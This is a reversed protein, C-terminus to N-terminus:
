ATLIVANNGENLERVNDSPDLVFGVEEVGWGVRMNQVKLTRGFGVELRGLDLSEVVDGDAVIDLDFGDIDVLGENLVSINFDLYAGHLVADLNSIRADALAEISYLQVMLEIMDDSMRQGCDSVNFMINNPDASHDFGVVHVVGHLAVFPYDCDRGNYLIVKGEEILKFGSTNIIRSPGGEGAAFLRDSLEIFENSCGIMIDGDAEVEYFSVIKVKSSFINFASRMDGRRESDCGEDISYSILNHNFRLNEGFVPVAGYDIIAVKEPEVYNTTLKVNGRFTNEIVFAFSFILLLFVLVVSM